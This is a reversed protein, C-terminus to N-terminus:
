IHINFINAEVISLINVMRMRKRFELNCTLIEKETRYKNPKKMSLFGQVIQLKTKTNATTNIHEVPLYLM